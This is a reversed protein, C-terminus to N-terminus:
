AFKHLRTIRLMDRHITRSNGLLMMAIEKSIAFRFPASSLVEVRRLFRRNDSVSLTLRTWLHTRLGHTKWARMKDGTNTSWTRQMWNTATLWVSSPTLDGRQVSLDHYGLAGRGGRM